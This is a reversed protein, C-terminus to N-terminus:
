HERAKIPLLIDFTRSIKTHLTFYRWSHAVVCQADDEQPAPPTVAYYDLHSGAALATCQTVQSQVQFVNETGLSLPKVETQLLRDQLSVGAM